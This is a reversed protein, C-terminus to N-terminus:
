VGARVAAEKEATAAVERLTEEMGRRLDSRRDKVIRHVVIRHVVIRHVVIRHVVDPPAEVHVTLEDRDHTQATL